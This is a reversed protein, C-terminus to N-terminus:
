RAWQCDQEQKVDPLYSEVYVTVQDQYDFPSGLQLTACKELGLRSTFFEFGKGKKKGSSLHTHETSLTASVLIVASHSELMTRQVVHGIYLPAACAVVQRRHRRQSAEIWYVSESLNQNVFVQAANALDGCRRGYAAIELAEDQEALSEATKRLHDAVQSLPGSIVNAFADSSTVRGNGASRQAADGFCSLEQFFLEAKEAATAVLKAAETDHYPALLGKGTKENLVRALVYNVQSNSLRLGFHKSAVSEVNHAEDLILFQCKPLCSGGELRLAMDSFLLAHNTVIIDASYLQRRARQYFCNKHHECGRGLCSGTDSCVAEWVTAPPRVELDSLSGDKTQLAWHYIAELAHVQQANEFLTLHWKQAQRFRRWCFFNGRGKALAVTFDVGAIEQIFPIDKITLQEQLSITYTSIMVKQKMRVARQVAPVIYAFSKGVGTGAEAVLHKGQEFADSIARAMEIQQPRLEYGGLREAVPGGSGLFGVPDLSAM